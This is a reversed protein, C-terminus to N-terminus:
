KFLFVMIHEWDKLSGGVRCFVPFHKGNGWLFKFINEFNIAQNLKGEALFM